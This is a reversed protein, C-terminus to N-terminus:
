NKSKEYDVHNVLEEAAKELSIKKSMVSEAAASAAEDFSKNGEGEIGM